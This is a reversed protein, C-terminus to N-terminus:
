LGEVTVFATSRDLRRIERLTRGHHTESAWRQVIRAEDPRGTDDLVVTAGSALRDALLPFAPYRAEYTTGGIPGDVFLLDVPPLEPLGSIDFWAQADHGPLAIDVLPAHLVDAWKQLGLRALETRTVEAYEASSELAIVRGEGGRHSLATAFWITSSGSGCELITSIPTTAIRELIWILTSPTMAWDGLEPMPHDHDVLLHYVRELEVTVSPNRQVTVLVQYIERSLGELRQAHQAQAAAQQDLAARQEAIQAAIRRSGERQKTALARTRKRAAQQRVSARRLAVESRRSSADIQSIDASVRRAWLVIWAFGCFAAASVAAMAAELASVLAAVFAVATLVTTLLLLARRYNM